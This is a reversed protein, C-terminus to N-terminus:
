FNNYFPMTSIFQLFINFQLFVLFCKCLSTIRSFVFCFPFEYSLSIISLYAIIKYHSLKLLFQLLQTFILHSSIMSDVQWNRKKKMFASGISRMQYPQKNQRKTEHIFKNWAHRQKYVQMGWSKHSVWFVVQPLQNEEEVVHTGPILGFSDPKDALVKICQTMEGASDANQKNQPIPFTVQVGYLTPLLEM